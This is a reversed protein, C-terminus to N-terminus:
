GMDRYRFETWFRRMLHVVWLRGGRHALCHAHGEGRAPEVFARAAHRLALNLYKRACSRTSPVCPKSIARGKPRWDTNSSLSRSGTSTTGTGGNMALLVPGLVKENLELGTKDPNAWVLEIQCPRASAEAM